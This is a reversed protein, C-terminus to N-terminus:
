LDIKKGLLKKYDCGAHLDYAFCCKIVAQFRWAQDIDVADFHIPNFFLTEIDEKACNMLWMPDFIRIKRCLKSKDKDDLVIVAEGSRWDYYWFAFDDSFNQQIPMMPIKKMTNAPKYKLTVFPRNNIPNIEKHVIRRPYQPKFVDWKTECERKMKNAMFDLLGSAGILTHRSLDRVAWYPLTKL